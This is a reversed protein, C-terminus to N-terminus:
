IEKEHTFKTPILGAQAQHEGYAKGQKAMKGVIELIKPDIRGKPENEFPTGPLPMFTHTHIKVNKLRNNLVDEFFNITAEIDEKNEGPLGFIFDIECKFDYKQLIEVAQYIHEITHGRSILKLLRNSATQAGLLIKRNALFPEITEMVEDTVSEPRVESPFTGFYLGKIRQISSVQSLLQYLMEVNPTVGNKSGYAFANPTLFWLKDYKIQAGLQVWHIIQELPAHRMKQSTNGTQCFKCRFPCGRSIEIPGFLRFKPSFSPSTGLKHLIPPKSPIYFSKGRAVGNLRGVDIDDPKQSILAMLLEQFAREGENPIIFDVQNSGFSFDQPKATPHPGGVVSIINPHWQSYFNPYNQNFETFQPIQITLLSYALLIIDYKQFSIEALEKKHQPGQYLQFSLPLFDYHDCITSDHELYGMLVAWSYRNPKAYGFLVLGKM